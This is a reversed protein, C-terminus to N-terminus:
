CSSLLGELLRAMVRRAAPASLQQRSREWAEWSAAVDLAVLLDRSERNAGELEPAFTNALLSRLLANSEALGEAIAPQSAAVAAATRRVPSIAEFLAARQRVTREIRSPLPLDSPIPRLPRWHREYQTGIVAKHLVGMDPFHYFVLRTTVEARDAVSKATPQADGEEILSIVADAIRQRTREGRVKPTLGRATNLPRRRAKAGRGGMGQANM